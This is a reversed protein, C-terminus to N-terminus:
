CRYLRNFVSLYCLIFSTNTFDVQYDPDDADDQGPDDKNQGSDSSAQVALAELGEEKIIM